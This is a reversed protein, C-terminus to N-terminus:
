TLRDWAVVITSTSRVILTNEIMTSPEIAYQIEGFRRPRPMSGRSGALTGPVAQVPAPPDALCGCRSVRRRAHRLVARRVKTIVHRTSVRISPGCRAHGAAAVCPCGHAQVAVPVGSTDRIGSRLGMGTGIRVVTSHVLGIRRDAAGRPGRRYSRTICSSGTQEHDHPYRTVVRM